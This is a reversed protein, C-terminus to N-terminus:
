LSKVIEAERALDQATLRFYPIGAEDARQIFDTKSIGLLEAAKGSSIKAEHYLEMIIAESAALDLRDNRDRLLEAVVDDVEIEIVSM